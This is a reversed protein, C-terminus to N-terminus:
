PKHNVQKILDSSILRNVRTENDYLCSSRNRPSLFIKSKRYLNLRIPLYEPKSVTFILEFTFDAKMRSDEIKM